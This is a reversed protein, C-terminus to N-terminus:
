DRGIHTLINAAVNGGYTYEKEKHMGNKDETIHKQNKQSIDAINNHLISSPLHILSSRIYAMQM